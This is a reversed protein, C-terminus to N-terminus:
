RKFPTPFNGKRFKERAARVEELTPEREQQIIPRPNQPPPSEYKNKRQKEIAVFVANSDDEDGHKLLYECLARRVTASLSEMNKACYDDLAAALEPPLKFAKHVFRIEKKPRAM